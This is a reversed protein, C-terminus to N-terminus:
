SFPEVTHINLLCADEITDEQIRYKSGVWLLFANIVKNFLINLLIHKQQIAIVKQFDPEWRIKQSNFFFFTNNDSSVELMVHTYKRM